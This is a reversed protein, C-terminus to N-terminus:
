NADLIESFYACLVGCGNKILMSVLLPPYKPLENVSSALLICRSPFPKPYDEVHLSTHPYAGLDIPLRCGNHIRKHLGHHSPRAADGRRWGRCWTCFKSRKNVDSSCYQSAGSDQSFLLQPCKELPESEDIAAAGNNRISFKVALGKGCGTVPLAIRDNRYNSTAWLVSFLRWHLNNRFSCYM